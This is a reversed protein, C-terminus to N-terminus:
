GGWIMIPLNTNRLEDVMKDIMNEPYTKLMKKEEEKGEEGRIKFRTAVAGLTRDTKCYM